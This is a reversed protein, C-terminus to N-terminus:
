PESPESDFAILTQLTTRGCTGCHRFEQRDTSLMGRLFAQYPMTKKVVYDTPENCCECRLTYYWYDPSKM